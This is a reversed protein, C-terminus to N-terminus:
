NNSWGADLLSWSVWGKYNMDIGSTSLLHEVCTAHSNFVALDLPTCGRQLPYLLETLM